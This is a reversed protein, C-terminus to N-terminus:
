TQPGFQHDDFKECMYFDCHSYKWISFWMRIFGRLSSYENRLTYFFERYSSGSVDIQAIKYDEGKEVMLLIYGSLLATSSVAGQGQPGPQVSTSPSSTSQQYRLNNQSPNTQNPNNSPGALGSSAGQIAVPSSQATRPLSRIIKQLRKSFALPVKVHRIEGYASEWKLREEGDELTVYRPLPSWDWCEGTLKEIRDQCHGITRSIFGGKENTEFQIAHPDICRLEAALDSLNYRAVYAHHKHDQRSWLELLM